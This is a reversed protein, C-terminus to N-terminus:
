AGYGAPPIEDLVGGYVALGNVTTNIHQKTELLAPIANLDGVIASANGIINDANKKIEKAAALVGQLLIVVVPAIVAILVINGIWWLIM